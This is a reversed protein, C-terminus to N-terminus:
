PGEVFLEFEVRREQWRPPGESQPVAGIQLRQAAIGQAILVERVVTARALALDRNRQASGTGDSYGILRLHQEPFKQLLDRVARIKDLSDGVLASSDVPFFIAMDLRQTGAIAQNTVYQVGPIRAFAETAELLDQRTPATGSLIVQGSRFTATLNFRRWQALTTALRKVEAATQEPPVPAPVVQLQNAIPWEPVALTAAAIAQKQLSVTPLRGRLVLQNGRVEPELRYLALEPRDALAQRVRHLRTEIQHHQWSRWGWGGVFALSCIWLVSPWVWLKRRRPKAQFGCLEALGQLIELPVHERDGDFTSIFKGYKLVWRGLLRRLRELFEPPPDGDVAAALYCYGAVELLIQSNGYDIRDLEKVDGTRAICDNAFSRIATLMGAVMDGELINERQAEGIVLGSMKHILFLARVQFPSSEKFILEAESVGQMRARVKRRLGELSFANELKENISRIAEAFYKAITSGIVPYLADVMADRELAIQQQIAAGIQPALAEAVADPDLRIQEQIALAIEPAIAKAITEPSNQIEWAIADPVLEALVASMAEKDQQGRQWILRDIIPVLATCVEEQAVVVKRNLLEGIVPLLLEIFKDPEVIHQAINDVWQRLEALEEPLSAQQHAVDQLAQQLSELNSTDATARELEALRKELTPDSVRHEITTVRREVSQVVKLVQSLEPHVLISQLQAIAASEDEPTVPPPTPLTPPSASPASKLSPSPEWSRRPSPTATADWQGSPQVSPVTAEPKARAPPKPFRERNHRVLAEKADAVMTAMLAKDEEAATSEPALVPPADDPPPVDVPIAGLEELLAWFGSLPDSM